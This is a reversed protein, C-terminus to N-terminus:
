PDKQIFDWIQKLWADFQRAADLYSRYQGAHAWEDTEGYAIYLVRPKKATLYEMAAYHMFVDLCEAEGFPRHAEKNMANILRENANPIKGGVPDFASFVPIGSREENIIRDFANWAGFVAVRGKLKPQKNLFELVTVHPNAPYSNKNIATDPYGTLIENYGPYSFWYKNANDVKSGAARNGFIQGKEVMTSWMFPLLLKRREKEDTHWYNKYIYTSDGQNYRSDNALSSDMGKFLDQWRFGDTTIIIINQTQQQAKAASYAFVFFLIIIKKM